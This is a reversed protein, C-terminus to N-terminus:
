AITCYSTSGRSGGTEFDIPTDLVPRQAIVCYSTSGRSGGTEENTPTDVTPLVIFSDM